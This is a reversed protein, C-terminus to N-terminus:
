RWVEALSEEVDATRRRKSACHLRESSSLHPEVSAVDLLLLVAPEWQPACVDRNHHQWKATIETDHRLVGVTDWREQCTMDSSRMGSFILSSWLSPSLRALTLTCSKLTRQHSLISCDPTSFVSPQDACHPRNESLHPYIIAMWSLASINFTHGMWAVFTVKSSICSMVCEVCHLYYSPLM